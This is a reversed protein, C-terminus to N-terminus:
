WDILICVEDGVVAGQHGPEIVLFDGAKGETESGDESRYLIRGQVVYEFHDGPCYDMGNKPKADTLWSWGPNLRSRWVIVQGLQVAEAEGHLYQETADPEDDLSKRYVAM